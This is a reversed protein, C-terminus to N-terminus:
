YVVRVNWKLSILMEEFILALASLWEVCVNSRHWWVSTYSASKRFTICKLIESFELLRIESEVNERCYNRFSVTTSDGVKYPM